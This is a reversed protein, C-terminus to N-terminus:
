GNDHKRYKGLQRKYYFCYDFCCMKWVDGIDNRPKSVIINCYFTLCSGPCLFHRILSSINRGHKILKIWQAYPLLVLFRRFKCLRRMTSIDLLFYSTSLIQCYLSFNLTVKGPDKSLVHTLLNNTFNSLRLKM